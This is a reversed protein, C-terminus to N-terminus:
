QSAGKKWAESPDDDDPDHDHRSIISVMSGCARLVVAGVFESDSPQADVKHRLEPNEAVARAIGEAEQQTAYAGMIVDDLNCLAVPIYVAKM